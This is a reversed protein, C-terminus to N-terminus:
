APLPSPPPSADVRCAALCASLADRLETADRAVADADALQDATFPGTSVAVCSLGDARACAIDRPTDGILITAERPFPRGAEGSRERAIPPLRLRDEADSAFAGHGPVFWDGIGARALKLRAVPEFNGTVLSLRVSDLSNLWALLAPIGSIVYASLDAECLEAYARATEAAVAHARADIEESPVGAGTLLLRAIEGDTRGAPAVEFRFREPRIGHVREIALHLADRHAATAGALLTGDIDFLLLAPM